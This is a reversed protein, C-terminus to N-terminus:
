EVPDSSRETRTTDNTRLALFGKRPLFGGAKAGVQEQLSLETVHPGGTGVFYASAHLPQRPRARALDHHLVPRPVVQPQPDHHAVDDPGGLQPAKLGVIRADLRQESAARM